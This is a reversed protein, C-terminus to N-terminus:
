NEVAVAGFDMIFPREKVNTKVYLTEKFNGARTPTFKITMQAKEGPAVEKPLNIVVCNCTSAYDRIFLPETGDNIFEYSQTTTTGVNASGISFESKELNMRPGVKTEFPSEMSQAQIAFTFLLTLLTLYVKKM